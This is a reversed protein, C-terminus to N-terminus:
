FLSLGRELRPALFDIFARVKLPLPRRGAHIVHVPLPPAEFERLALVLEGRRLPDAAQYSLLHAVGLGALGLLALPAVLALAGQGSLWDGVLWACVFAVLAYGRFLPRQAAALAAPASIRQAM